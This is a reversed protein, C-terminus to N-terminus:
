QKLHIAAHAPCFATRVLGSFYLLSFHTREGFHKMGSTNGLLKVKKGQFKWIQVHFLTNHIIIM